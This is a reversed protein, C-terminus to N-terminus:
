RACVVGLVTPARGRPRNRVLEPANDVDHMGVFVGEDMDGELRVQNVREVNPVDAFTGRRCM